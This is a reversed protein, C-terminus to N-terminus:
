GRRKYVAYEVEEKLITWFRVCSHCFYVDYGGEKWDICNGHGGCERCISDEESIKLEEEWKKILNYLDGYPTPSSSDRYERLDNVFESILENSFDELVEYMEVSNKIPFKFKKTM